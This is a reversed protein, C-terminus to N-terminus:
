EVTFIFRLTNHQIIKKLTSTPETENKARMKKEINRIYLKLWNGVEVKHIFGLDQSGLHSLPLSEGQWHLLNLLSWNLGQTPFIGQLLFHCGM